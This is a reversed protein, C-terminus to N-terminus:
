CPMCYTGFGSDQAFTRFIFGGQFPLTSMARVEVERESTSITHLLTVNSKPTTVPLFFKDLHLIRSSFVHM